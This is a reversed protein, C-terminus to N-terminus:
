ICRNHNMTSVGQGRPQRSQQNSDKKAGMAATEKMPAHYKIPPQCAPEVCVGGRRRRETCSIQASIAMQLTGIAAHRAAHPRCTSSSEAAMAPTCPAGGRGGQATARTCAWMCPITSSAALMRGGNSQHKGFCALKHALKHAPAVRPTRGPVISRHLM